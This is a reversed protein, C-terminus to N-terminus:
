CARGPIPPWTPWPGPGAGPAIIAGPEGDACVRSRGAGPRHQVGRDASCASLRTGSGTPTAPISRTGPWPGCSRRTASPASASQTRKMATASTAAASRKSCRHSRSCCPPPRQRSRPRACGPRSSCGARATARAALTSRAGAVLVNATMSQAYALLPDHPRFAFHIDDFVVPSYLHTISSVAVIRAGRAAALARHLGSALAFHGLHNVAFRSEWRRAMHQEAPRTLDAGNVLLHLPGDWAATFAAVSGQDALDLRVATVDPNGTAATIGAAARQGAPLDRVALTVAAGARALERATETGLPSAGGTVVARRGGLDADEAVDAATSAFGFGTVIAGM